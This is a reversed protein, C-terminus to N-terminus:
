DPRIMTFITDPNVVTYDNYGLRAIPRLKAVDILGDATIMDDQIHIGIVEGFVVINRHDEHASLVDVTKVYRCEFHVPSEGVRPPAVLESKQATVGALDFEDIDHPAPASTANMPEALGATVLNIVFEGTAEINAVTDKLGGADHPGTSSFMVQPPTYAVGNFFSYPALNVHGAADMSSIWGIPRPIVLANFPNHKLGHPQDTQYFM